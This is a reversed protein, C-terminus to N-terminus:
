GIREPMDPARLETRLNTGAFAATLLAADDHRPVYHLYRMTTKIDSHGMWNQIKVLDIGRAACTTGFTHRLDHFVIPDDKERLQGLAAGGLAAYFEDRVVDDLLHKGLQNPFVLDDPATFRERRSLRDLAVMAQDSVPVTRIRHSKPTIERFSGSPLNRRVRLIRNDFDVHHWRLALLEGQRLGTFAAVEFLAALLDDGAARAVAHVQETSLVNIEESFRVVVREAEERPNEVIWRRRKAFVLMGSLLTLKKQATRRSGCGLLHLRYADVDETGISTVPKTKGFYPVIGNEGTVASTYDRIASPKREKEFEVYRLWARAVDDLTMVEKPGRAWTATHSATADDDGEGALSEAAARAMDPWEGGALEAIALLPEWAEELRDSIKELPARLEYRFLLEHNQEAWAALQGRLTDLEAQLLRRRLREVPESRLKRDIPVVIARDRITDPLKGTAIGAIVKPCYVEYSVPKGDKGGRIVRSGPANGANLVGRLDEHRDSNGAFIADVEDILFTPHRDGITQFLAAASISATKM